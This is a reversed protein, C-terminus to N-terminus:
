RGPRASSCSCSGPPCGLGGRADAVAGPRVRSLRGFVSALRWGTRPKMAPDAGAQKWDELQRRSPPCPAWIRIGRSGKTVCYGLKLWARFGAVRTASPHQLQILLVNGLSYSHFSRRAKLWGQWGDSSRLQEVSAQVLQRQEARRHEREEDTLARRTHKSM